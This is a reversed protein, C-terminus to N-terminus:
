SRARARGKAEAARLDAGEKGEFARRAVRAAPAVKGAAVYARTAKNYARAATRSGEGENRSSSAATKSAPRKTTVPM